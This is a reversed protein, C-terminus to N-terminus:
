GAIEMLTITSIGNFLDTAGRRNLYLVNSGSVKAQLTYSLAAVSAPSDLFQFSGGIPGDTQLCREVISGDNGGGIGTGDRAARFYGIVGVASLGFEVSVMVLVKNTTSSLTIPATMGTVDVYSGSTTSFTRAVVTTSVVQLVSGRPGGVRGVVVRDPGNVLVVVFDDVLLRGIASRCPQGSTSAGLKVLLPSVQTVTGLRWAKDDDPGDMLAQVLPNM